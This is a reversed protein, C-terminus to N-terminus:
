NFRRLNEPTQPLGRLTCKDEPSKTLPAALWVAIYAWFGAAAYFLAILFIIRILVVDVGFYISLGSCVGAIKKQESDRFFKKPADAYGPDKDENITNKM